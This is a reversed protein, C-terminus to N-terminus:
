GDSDFDNIIKERYHVGFHIDRKRKFFYCM